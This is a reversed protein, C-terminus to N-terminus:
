LPRRASIPRSWPELRIGYGLIDASLVEIEEFGARVLNEILSSIGFVRMELVLEGGGHFCLNQFEQLTGDVTLNRLIPGSETAELKWDHLDPFHEVTEALSYPVTFLLAGGPKLVQFLGDFARQVPPAVHELVDSCTVIDATGVLPGPPQCIDLFTAGPFAATDYQTNIYRVAQRFFPEFGPWDSVGYIRKDARPWRTAPISRRWLAMSTLHVLARARVSAGCSPCAGGERELDDLAHARVDAGCLNCIFPIVAKPEVGAGSTM